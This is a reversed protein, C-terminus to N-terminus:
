DDETRGASEPVSGPSKQVAHPPEAPASSIPKPGSTGAIISYPEWGDQGLGTLVSNRAMDPYEVVAGDPGTWRSYFGVGGAKWKDEGWSTYLVGYEWKTVAGDQAVATGCGSGPGLERRGDVWGDPTRAQGVDALHLV